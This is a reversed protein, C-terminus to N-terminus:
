AGDAGSAPAPDNWRATYPDYGCRLPKSYHTGPDQVLARCDTCVHRFECDRCVEVEDKRISWFVRFEDRAVVDRLATRDVTGHSTPMAPCNRIAGSGDIAIKRNLCTNCSQSEAFTPLNVAFYSPHVHGCHDSSRVPQTEFFVPAAPPGGQRVAPSSHVVIRALRPHTARLTVLAADTTENSHCLLLEVSSLRSRDTAGLLDALVSLPFPRYARLELAESGLEDLQAIITAFHLATTPSLEVIANTIQAPRDWSLDLDPFEEPDDCWFGLEREALGSLNQRLAAAGEQTYRALVAEAPAVACAALADHLANSIPIVAGRQVDCITSRAAGRVLLCCAYLKFYRRGADSM